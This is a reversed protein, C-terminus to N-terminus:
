GDSAEKGEAAADLDRLAARAKAGEDSEARCPWSRPQHIWSGSAAYFALAERAKGLQARLADREAEFRSARQIALHCHWNAKNAGEIANEILIKYGGQVLRCYAAVKRASDKRKLIDAILGFNVNAETDATMHWDQSEARAADREAVLVRNADEALRLAYELQAARDPGCEFQTPQFSRGTAGASQSEDM